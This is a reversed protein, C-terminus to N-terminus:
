INIEWVDKHGNTWTGCNYYELEGRVAHDLQHTHGTIIRKIKRDDVNYDNIYDFAVDQFTKANAYKGHRKIWMEFKFFPIDIDSWIRKEMWSVMKTMWRGIFGKGKNAFDFQHGHMVLTDNIILKESFSKSIKSDHNGIIYAYKKAELIDILNEYKDYIESYDNEWLDYIDGVLVLSKNPISVLFRLCELVSEQFDDKKDRVGLHLDSIFYM